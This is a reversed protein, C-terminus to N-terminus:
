PTVWIWVPVQCVVAAPELDKEDWLLMVFRFKNGRHFRELLFLFFLSWHRCGNSLGHMWLNRRQELLADQWFVHGTAQTILQIISGWKTGINEIAPAFSSFVGVRNRQPHKIIIGGRWEYGIAKSPDRGLDM